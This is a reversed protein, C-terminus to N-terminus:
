ANSVYKFLIEYFSLSRYKRFSKPYLIDKNDIIENILRFREQKSVDQKYSKLFVGATWYTVINKLKERYSASGLLELKTFLQITADLYNLCVREMEQYSHEKTSLTISGYKYYMYSNSNRLVIRSVYLMYNYLFIGDEGFSISENFSIAHEEIIKRNYLKSYPGRNQLLSYKDAPLGGM